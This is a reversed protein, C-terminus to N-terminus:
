AGELTDITETVIDMSGVTDLTAKIRFDQVAATKVSQQYDGELSWDLHTAKATVPVRKVPSAEKQARELVAKTADVIKVQDALVEVASVDSKFLHIASYFAGRPLKDIEMQGAVSTSYPYERVKFFVGLPQPLPDIEAFATLTLDAPAAADIAIQINLTQVNQTGVGPARRYAADIAEARFFHMAWDTATDAGRNYYSNLDILRQLNSHRIVEKGDIYMQIMGFNGVAVNTGGAQFFIRHYTPGLPIELVAQAGAEVRSISPLRVIKRAM